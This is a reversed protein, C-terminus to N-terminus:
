IRKEILTDIYKIALNPIDTEKVKGGVANLIERVSITKHPLAVIKSKYLFFKSNFNTKICHIIYIPQAFARPGGYALTSRAM